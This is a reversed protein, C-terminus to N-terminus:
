LIKWCKSELRKSGWKDLLLGNLGQTALIIIGIQHAEHVEQKQDSAQLLKPYWCPELPLGPGFDKSIFRFNHSKTQVGSVCALLTIKYGPSSQKRSLESVQGFDLM